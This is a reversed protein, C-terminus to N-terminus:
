AGGPSRLSSPGREHTWRTVEGDAVQVFGAKEFASLSAANGKKIRAVVRALGLGAEAYAVAKKLIRPGFGHGRAEPALNINVEAEDEALDLRVVGVAGAKAEAIFLRRTPDAMAREFWAEHTSWPVEDTSISQARTVDDNRWAWVRRSDAATARRLRVLDDSVAWEELIDMAVREAGRGDVLTKMADRMAALRAPAALLGTVLTTLRGSDFDSFPGARVAGGREEFARAVELQNDAITVLVAPTRCAALELVTTGGAAVALAASAFADRLATVAPDRLIRVKPHLGHWAELAAAHQFRPGIVLTLPEAVAALADAIRLTAGPPDAGGMTVVIGSRHEPESVRAFAARLPAYRPGLLSRRAGNYPAEDGYVNGNLVVEDTASGGRGDDIRVVFRAVSGMANRQAEDVDYSDVVVVDPALRELATLTAGLFGPPEAGTLREIPIGSREVVELAPDDVSLLVCDVGRARLADAIALTRVLHGMGRVSSGDARLVVRLM